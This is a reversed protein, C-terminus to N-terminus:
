ETVKQHRSRRSVLSIDPKAGAPETRVQLGRALIIQASVHDRHQSLGCSPCDHWRDRLTKKVEAGCLCSQSTGKPDVMLVQCGASVAKNCLIRQFNGWGADAISRALRRNKLMGQIDLSEMAIFGYRHVLWCAIKHHYEKRTNAIKVNIKAIKKKCKQKNKGNTKKRSHSRQLRRLKVLNKKLWRPNAVTEGNSTTLFSSLGVDIGIQPHWKQPINIEGLDCSLIVFWKDAERKITLTKINGCWPRHLKVRVVGVHQIRLRNNTIRIGDGHSPFVVSNFRDKSKFRPFGSKAAKNKIRAFFSEYANQLRRMTAQASSFNIRKYFNNTQRAEKFKASQKCYNTGKGTNKYTEIRDKLCENYLRRHTELMIGLEREQNANTWLRYKYATRM